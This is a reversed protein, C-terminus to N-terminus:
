ESGFSVFQNIVVNGVKFTKDNSNHIFDLHHRGLVAMGKFRDEQKLLKRAIEVLEQHGITRKGRNGAYNIKIFSSILM